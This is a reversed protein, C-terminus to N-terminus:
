KSPISIKIDDLTRIANVGPYPLELAQMYGGMVYVPIDAFAAEVIRTLMGSTPPQYLLLAEAHIMLDILKPEDVEGLVTINPPANRAMGETGFGALMYNRQGPHAAIMRLLREVGLRTPPNGVSGLILIGDKKSTQRATRISELMVQEEQPPHYPLTRAQSIGFAQLVATDFDSITKVAKAHRYIRMEARFAADLSRFYAQRQGNVMFEINHPYATFPIGLSVLMNGLIIDRNPALEIHVDAFKFSQLRTHLLAGYLFAAALGKLSLFRIGNCISVPLVLLLSLPHKILQVFDNRTPMDVVHNM